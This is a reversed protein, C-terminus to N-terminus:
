RTAFTPSSWRSSDAYVILGYCDSRSEIWARAQSGMAFAATAYADITSLREGALTVSVLAMSDSGYPSVIHEGREATGSTAVALHHGAIVGAFEGSRLPDTIGIRWPQGPQASGACQVDGGGNVCHNVSGADTLMESARQIAWGKVLGSPDLAGRPYATFYGDTEVSLEDCRSLIERVEPACDDIALDGRALRNIQSAPKYTSFVDDVWHLWQVVSDIASQDVGPSRVDISFVTGMAHEVHRQPLRLDTPSSM